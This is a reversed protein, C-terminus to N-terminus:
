SLILWCIYEQAAARPRKEVTLGFKPMVLAANKHTSLGGPTKATNLLHVSFLLVQSGLGKTSMYPTGYSYRQLLGYIGYSYRQPTNGIGYHYQHGIGRYRLQVKRTGYTYRQTLKSTSSRM